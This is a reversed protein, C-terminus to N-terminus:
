PTATVTTTGGSGLGGNAGAGALANVSFSAVIPVSFAASLVLKKIVARRETDIAELAREFKDENM